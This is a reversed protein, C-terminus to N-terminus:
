SLELLGVWSILSVGLNGRLCTSNLMGLRALHAKRM